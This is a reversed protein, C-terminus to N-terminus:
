FGSLARLDAIVICILGYIAECMWSVDAEAPGDAIANGRKWTWYRLIAINRLM